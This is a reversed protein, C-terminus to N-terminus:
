SITSLGTSKRDLQKPLLCGCCRACERRFNMAYSGYVLPNMCSNSVAMLFLYDQIRNDVKMASERDFMYWLTMVTYPMWCWVFVSVITVTMRLTRSRAREINRIDSRRLHMRSGKSQFTLDQTEKSKKSIECLICTYAVSIVLLPVFYMAAVCFLNYAIELAPTEFFGFSVCQEFDPADPHSSVHFVLSQPFSCILSFGWACALMMRGRRRADTVRLPHLVAFYRDLSVCILVNSSLYLGFARLFLFAKCAFNGAMWKVTIRWGVELPIMVFTVLLDAIALHSIMLSIRSKRRRSRFLTIFVTLNGIAAIVFLVCYVIIVTLANQNFTPPVFSTSNRVAEDVSGSDNYWTTENMSSVGSLVEQNGDFMVGVPKLPQFYWSFNVKASYGDSTPM